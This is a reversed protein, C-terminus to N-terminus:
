ALELEDAKRFNYKLRRHNILNLEIILVGIFLSTSIGFRIYM